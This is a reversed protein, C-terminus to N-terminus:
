AMPLTFRFVAGGDPADEVWVHGGHAEVALRCFALGLGTGQGRGQPGQGFLEFILSRYAEPVGPGRDAVAVCIWRGPRHGAPLEHEDLVRASIDVKGGRPSFKTGNDVLNQLVRRVLDLDVLIPPLPATHNRLVVQRDTAIHELRECVSEVLEFLEAPQSMLELQRQELRRIDLLANVLDLMQQSSNGAIQVIREQAATLPGSMQKLLLDVSVMMNTLPARLDHVIMNNLDQRLKEAQREATVDRIVLLAARQKGVAVRVPRVSWALNRVPPTMLNLEGEHEDAEHSAVAAISACMEALEDGAHELAPHACIEAVSRGELEEDVGLLHSFSANAAVIEGGETSVLMGEATSQLIASLRDHATSVQDFLHLSELVGGATKAYLVVMERDAPGIPSDGYGIWLGGLTLKAGRVPVILVGRVGADALVPPLSWEDLELFEQDIHEIRPGLEDDVGDPLDLLLRRTTNDRGLVYSGGGVGNTTGIAGRLTMQMIEDTSLQAATTALTLATLATLRDVTQERETALRAAVIASAAQNAVIELEQILANGFPAPSDIDDLAIVGVLSGAADRLPLLVADGFGPALEHRGLHLMLTGVPPLTPLLREVLELPAWLERGTLAFIHELGAHALTRLRQQEPDVIGVLIRARATMSQMTAVIQRGVDHVDSASRLANGIAVIRNLQQNRQELDDIHTALAIDTHSYLEANELAVAAQEAVAELLRGDAATFGGARKNRLQLVGRLQRRGVLPAAIISRSRVPGDSDLPAYAHKYGQMDNVIRVTQSLLVEHALGSGTPIRMGSKPELTYRVVLDGNDPDEILVSGDEVDLAAQLERMILMPVELPDLTASITKGIRNILALQGAQQEVRSYLQANAVAAAAQSAVSSLVHMNLNTYRVAPDTHAAVLVGLRRDQHSLPVGLWAHIHSESTVQQPEVGRRRCESFYDDCVIAVGSRVIMGTLGAEVPWTDRAIELQETSWLFAFSLTSADDNLLAIYLADSPVIERVIEGLNRLLPDLTLTSSILRGIRDMVALERGIGFTTGAQKDPQSQTGSRDLLALAMATYAALEGIQSTPTAGELVLCGRLDGAVLLPVYALEDSEVAQGAELQLRQAPSPVPLLPQEAFLAEDQGSVEWYLQLGRPNALERLQQQLMTVLETRATAQSLALLGSGVSAVIEGNPRPQSMAGDADEHVWTSRVNAGAGDGCKLVKESILRVALPLRRSIARM